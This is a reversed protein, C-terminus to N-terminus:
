FTLFARKHLFHVDNHYDKQTYFLKLYFDDGGEVPFLTSVGDEGKLLTYTAQKAKPVFSLEFDKCDLSYNCLQMKTLLEKDFHELENKYNIYTIIAIM